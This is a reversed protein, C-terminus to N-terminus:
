RRYLKSDVDIESYNSYEEEIGLDDSRLYIKKDDRKEINVETGPDIAINVVSSGDEFIYLPHIDLTGGALDIRVPATIKM